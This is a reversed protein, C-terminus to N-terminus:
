GQGAAAESEATVTPFSKLWAQVEPDAFFAAAAEYGSTFLWEKQAETLDFDTTGISGTPIDISREYHQHLVADHDHGELVTTILAHTFKELTNTPLADKDDPAQLYYGITPVRAGEDGPAFLSVPFNSLVGGDVLTATTGDPRKLEFPEFFYPISMSARVAYSVPYEKPDPFGYDALDDPFVIKRMHTVDTSVVRLGIGFREELDRFTAFPKGVKQLFLSELWDIVYQGKYIGERTVLHLFSLPGGDKFKRFDLGFLIPKLEQATFGAAVLAATIAGASTGAVAQWKWGLEEAATLAGVLAIGKVGGGKFVANAAPM